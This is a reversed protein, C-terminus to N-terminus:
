FHMSIKGKLIMICMFLSRGGFVESRKRVEMYRFLIWFDFEWTVGVMIEYLKMM